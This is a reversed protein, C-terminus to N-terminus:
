GHSSYQRIRASSRTRTRVRATSGRTEASQPRIVGTDSSDCWVIYRQTSSRYSRFPYCTVLALRPVTTPELFPGEDQPVVAVNNVRYTRVGDRTDVFVRDAPQLRALFAFQGDRHGALVCIGNRNPLSTMAVHGVGFAMSQGSASSLIMRDIRLRPVRLRGIPHMDAWGWPPHPKGDVCHAAYARRIMREAVRAKLALWAQEFHLILGCVLLLAGLAFIAARSRSGGQLPLRFSPAPQLQLSRQQRRKPTRQMM